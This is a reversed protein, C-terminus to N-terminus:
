QDSCDLDQDPQLGLCPIPCTTRSVSGFVTPLFAVRHHSLQMSQRLRLRVMANANRDHGQSGNTSSRHDRRAISCKRHNRIRAVMSTLMETLSVYLLTTSVGTTSFSCTKSYTFM